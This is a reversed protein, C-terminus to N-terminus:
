GEGKRKNLIDNLRSDINNRTTIEKTNINVDGDELFDQGLKDDMAFMKRLEGYFNEMTSIIMTSQKNNERVEKMGTYLTEYHRAGGDNNELQRLQKIVAKKSIIQLFSMDALNKADNRIKNQIYKHEIIKKNDDLFMSCMNTLCDLSEEFCELNIKEYDMEPELMSEDLGFIEPTGVLEDVSMNNGERKAEDYLFEINNIFNKKEDKNM